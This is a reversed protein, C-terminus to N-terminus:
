IGLGKDAVPEERISVFTAGLTDLCCRAFSADLASSRDGVRAVAVVAEVSTM